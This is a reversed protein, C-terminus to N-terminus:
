FLVKFLTLGHAPATVGALTRNRSELIAPIFEPDLKGMGVYILTGVLNRVMKYLFHNGKLIFQLRKEPHEVIEISEVKRIHDNYRENKKVNTFSSFNHQGVLLLATKRMSDLDIPHHVHWSYRRHHPLQYSGYCICYHYEKSICDLTPHFDSKMEEADRIVIDSPLLQNLSVCFRDLELNEKSTLFNVVQGLAHVGADTRSSAQIAVPHQLIQELTNQLSEEISPGEKTKQWGLYCTGEYALTLKINKM